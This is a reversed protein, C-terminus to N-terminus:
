FLYEFIQTYSKPHSSPPQLFLWVNQEVRMYIATIEIVIDATALILCILKSKPVNVNLM